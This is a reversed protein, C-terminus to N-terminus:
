GGEDKEGKPLLFSDISMWCPVMLVEHISHTPFSKRPLLQNSKRAPYSHLTSQLANHSCRTNQTMKGCHTLWILLQM